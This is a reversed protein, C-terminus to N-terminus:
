KTKIKDLKNIFAQTADKSTEAETKAKAEAEAQYMFINAYKCTITCMLTLGFIKIKNVAM